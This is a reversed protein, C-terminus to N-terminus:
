IVLNLIIRPRWIDSSIASFLEIINSCCVNVQQRESATHEHAIFKCNFINTRPVGATSFYILELNFRNM